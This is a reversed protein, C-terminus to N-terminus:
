GVRYLNGSTVSMAYLRGAADLGFSSLGEVRIRERRIDGARGKVLRLSFVAGSCEDGFYYRGSWV